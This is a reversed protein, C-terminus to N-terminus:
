ENINMSCFGIQYNFYYWGIEKKMRKAKKLIMTKKFVKDGKIAVVEVMTKDPLVDYKKKPKM